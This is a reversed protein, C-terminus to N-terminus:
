PEMSITPRQKLVIVDTTLAMRVGSWAARLAEILVWAGDLIGEAWADVPQGRIVDYGIVGDHRLIEALRVTPEREGANILIQYFLAALAEAVADRGAAQDGVLELEQLAPLCALYAIGGGPVLGHRLASRIARIAREAQQRRVARESETNAGIKLVACAGVLRGIRAQLGNAIELSTAKNLQARLMHLRQDHQAQDPNGAIVLDEYSARVYTSYGLDAISSSRLQDGAAETLLRAGTLAALDLFDQSNDTGFSRLEVAVTPLQGRQQNLVLTHLAAGTIRNAILILPQKLVVVHELLPMIQDLQEITGEYLAVVGGPREATRQDISTALGWSALRGKWVGGHLYERDVYTAVYEEISIAADAGLRGYIEALITSLGVDDSATMAVRLLDLDDQVPRAMALLTTITTEVAQDIGACIELVHAGAAIPQYAASLLAQALVASTACGDGVTTQVRWVLNRLLMAGTNAARDPVGLFRRAITGADSLIEFGSKGNQALVLQHNPGLTVALLDALTNFGAIIRAHAQDHMMIAPTPM